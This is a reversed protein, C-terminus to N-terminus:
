KGTESEHLKRLASVVQEVQHPKARNGDPQLKIRRDGAWPTKFIHHSGKIREGGFRERCVSLLYSFRTSNREKELKAILDLLTM